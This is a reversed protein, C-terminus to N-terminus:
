LIMRFHCFFDSMYVLQTTYFIWFYVWVPATVYLQMVLLRFVSMPSFATKKLCISRNFVHFCFISKYKKDQTFIFEFQIFQTIFKAQPKKRQTREIFESKRMTITCLTRAKFCTIIYGRYFVTTYFSPTVPNFFGPSYSLCRSCAYLFFCPGQLMTKYVAWNEQM